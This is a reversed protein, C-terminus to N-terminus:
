RKPSAPSFFSPLPFPRAGPSQALANELAAAADPDLQLLERHLRLAADAQGARDLRLALVTLAQPDFPRILAQLNADRLHDDEPALRLGDTDPAASAAWRGSWGSLVRDCAESVTAFSAAQWRFSQCAQHASRSLRTWRSGTLWASVIAGSLQAQDAALSWPRCDLVQELLRRLQRRPLRELADTAAMSIGAGDFAETVAQDLAEARCREPSQRADVAPVSQFRVTLTLAPDVAPGRWLALAFLLMLLASLVIPLRNM